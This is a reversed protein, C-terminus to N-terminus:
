DWGPPERVSYEIRVVPRSAQSRPKRAHFTDKIGIVNVEIPTAGRSIRKKSVSWSTEWKTASTTVADFFRIARYDEIITM